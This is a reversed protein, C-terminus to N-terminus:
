RHARAVREAIAATDIVWTGERSRKLREVVGEPRFEPFLGLFHVGVCVFPAEFLNERSKRLLSRCRQLSVGRARLERILMLRM